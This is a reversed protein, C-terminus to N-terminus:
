DNRDDDDELEFDSALLEYEIGPEPSLFDDLNEYLDLNSAIEQVEADAAAAAPETGSSAPWEYRAIVSAAILVAAASAFPIIRGPRWRKPRKAEERDVEAAAALIAQTREERPEIGDYQALWEATARHGEAEAACSACEGLHTRIAESDSDSAEGDLFAVLEERVRACIM